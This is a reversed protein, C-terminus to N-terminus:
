DRNNFKLNDFEEKPLKSASSKNDRADIFIPTVKINYKLNIEKALVKIKEVKKFESDENIIVLYYSEYIEGSKMYQVTQIELGHILDSNSALKVEILVRFKNGYSIKFDVPGRGTDIEPSLDLNKAKCHIEAIIWFYYQSSKEKKASSNNDNKLLKYGKKNEIYHRFDNIIYEIEKDFEEKKKERFTLVKSEETNSYMLVKQKIKLYEEKIDEPMLEMYYDLDVYFIAQFIHPNKKYLEFYNPISIFDWDLYAKIM